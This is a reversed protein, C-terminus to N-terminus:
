KKYKEIKKRGRETESQKSISRIRFFGETNIDYM